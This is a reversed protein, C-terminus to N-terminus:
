RQRGLRTPERWDEPHVHARGDGTGDDEREVGPSPTPTSAVTTASWGAHRRVPRASRTASAPNRAATDTNWNSGSQTSASRTPVSRKGSM